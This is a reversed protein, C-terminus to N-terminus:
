GVTAGAATTESLRNGMEDYTYHFYEGSSYDADLLRYLSDYTYTIVTTTEPGLALPPIVPMGFAPRALIHGGRFAQPTESPWPTPEPSAEPTSPGPYPSDPAEPTPMVLAEEGGSLL